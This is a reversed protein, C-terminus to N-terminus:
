DPATRLWAAADEPLRGRTIPASTLLVEGPPLAPNRVRGALSSVVREGSAVLEAALARAETTGGLVLILGPPM